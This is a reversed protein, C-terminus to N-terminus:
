QKEWIQVDHGAKGDADTGTLTYTMTKGDKSIARKGILTGSGVKWTDEVHRDDIKKQALTSNEGMGVIPAIQAAIFKVSVSTRLQSVRKRFEM